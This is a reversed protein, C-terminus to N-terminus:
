SAPELTRAARTRLRELRMTLDFGERRIRTDLYYVTIAASSCATALGAFISSIGVFLLNFLWLPLGVAELFLDRIQLNDGLQLGAGFGSAIVQVLVMVGVWRLFSGRTLDWSRKISEIVGLDELVLASPAVSLKWTLYAYVGLMALFFPPCFFSLVLLLGVGISLAIVNITFVGILAFLRRLTRRLSDIATSPTGVLESHVLLTVATTSIVATLTQAVALGLISIAFVLLEEEGAQNPDLEMAEMIWPMIARLPFWILICIGICALFRAVLVDVGLDLLEAANRPRLVYSDELEIPEVPGDQATDASLEVWEEQPELDSM